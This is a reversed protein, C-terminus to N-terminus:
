LLRPPPRNTHKQGTTRILLSLAPPLGNWVMPAVVSCVHSQMIYLPLLLYCFNVTKLEQKHAPCIKVHLQHCNRCNYFTIQLQLLHIACNYNYTQFNSHSFSPHFSLSQLNIIPFFTVVFPNQLQLISHFKLKDNSITLSRCFFDSIEPPLFTFNNSTTM